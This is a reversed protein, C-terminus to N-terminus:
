KVVSRATGIMYLAGYMAIFLVVTNGYPLRRLPLEDEISLIFSVLVALILSTFVLPWSIWGFYKNM